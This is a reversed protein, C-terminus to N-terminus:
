VANLLDLSLQLLLHPLRHVIPLDDHQVQNVFLFHILLLLPRQGLLYLENHSRNLM